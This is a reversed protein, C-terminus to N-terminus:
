VTAVISRNNTELCRAAFSAIIDERLRWIEVATAKDLGEERDLIVDVLARDFLRSFAGQQEAQLTIFEPGGAVAGIAKLMALLRRGEALGVPDGIGYHLIFLHRGRYQRIHRFLTAFIPDTHTLKAFMATLDQGPRQRRYGWKILELLILLSDTTLAYYLVLRDSSSWGCSSGLCDKEDKSGGQRQPHLSFGAAANLIWNVPDSIYLRFVRENLERREGRFSRIIEEVAPLDAAKMDLIEQLVQRLESNRCFIRFETGDAKQVLIGHTEIDVRRKAYTRMEELPISEIISTGDTLLSSASVIAPDIGKEDLQGFDRMMARAQEVIGGNGLIRDRAQNFDGAWSRLREADESILEYRPGAGGGSGDGCTGGRTAETEARVRALAAANDMAKAQAEITLAFAALARDFDVLKLRMEDRSWSSAYARYLLGAHGNQISFLLATSLAGITALRRANHHAPRSLQDLSALITGQILVTMVVAVLISDWIAYLGTATFLSSPISGVIQLITIREVPGLTARHRRCGKAVSRRLRRLPPQTNPSSNM